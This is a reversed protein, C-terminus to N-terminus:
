RATIALAAPATAGPREGVQPLADEGFWAARLAPAAVSGVILLAPPRVKAATLTAVLQQLRGDIVRQDSRTGNEIAAFPTDPDRGAALLQQQIDAAMGLGMYFVLTEGGRALATWDLKDLSGQCHATVLRLGQAHDRHTLPIGAYAACGQAATIGPVIEFSIGHAKLVALEEGGRAFTLPDGGKLRVVHRGDQALALLLTNISLQSVSHGGGRKGVAIREADRRALDLVAPSVLQDHVIVDARQLHRLAALTLLGPDGPGAGVLVVRGAPAPAHAAHQLAGALAAGAVSATAGCRLLAGVEGDIVRDYFARRAALDPLAARIRPRWEALLAALAGLAPDLVSELQARLRRALVPAVGQTGIAITLPGRALVAPVIVDGVGPQDVANVWIGAQRAAAAVAANILGDATAAIVLRQGQVDADLFARSRLTWGAALAATLLGPTFEPAVVTLRAGAAALLELKRQAIEGGGVVLVPVDRLDLFLPLHALTTM